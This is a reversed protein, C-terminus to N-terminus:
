NLVMSAYTLSLPCVASFACSSPKFMACSASKSQCVESFHGKKNCKHCWVNIAPCFKRNNVGHFTLECFYCQKRTSGAVSMLALILKFM